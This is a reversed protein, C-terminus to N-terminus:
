SKKIGYLTATTYQVFNGAGAAPALTISTIASSNSWLGAQLGMIARAANNEEVFDSSVSKNNSGTYNPIYIDTSAFTNSTTVSNSLYFAYGLETSTGTFAAASLDGRGILINSAYGTASSNFTLYGNNWGNASNDTGRASVKVLLDTYTGPISTFSISSAGGSGVTNSSILTYTTAM